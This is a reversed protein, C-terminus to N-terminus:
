YIYFKNYIKFLYILLRIIYNTKYINNPMNNSLHIINNISSIM